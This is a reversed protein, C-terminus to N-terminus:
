DVAHQEILRRVVSHKGAGTPGLAYLNYGKQRIGVGFRPAELARAQGDVERLDPLEETTRTSM